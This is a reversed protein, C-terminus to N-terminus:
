WTMGPRETKPTSVENRDAFPDNEDELEEEEEEEEENAYGARGKGNSPVPPAKRTNATHFHLRDFTERTDRLGASEGMSASTGDEGEGESDSDDEVSKDLVEFAMLATM